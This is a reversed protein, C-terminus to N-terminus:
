ICSTLTLVKNTVAYKSERNKFISRLISESKNILSSILIETLAKLSVARGGALSAPSRPRCEQDSVPVLCVHCYGFAPKLRAKVNLQYRYCIYTGVAM